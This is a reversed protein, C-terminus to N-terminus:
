YERQALSGSGSTRGVQRLSPIPNTGYLGNPRPKRVAAIVLGFIEIGLTISAVARAKLSRVELAINKFVVTRISAHVDVRVPLEVVAVRLRYGPFSREIVCQSLMMMVRV